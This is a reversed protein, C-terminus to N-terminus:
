ELSEEAGTPPSDRLSSRTGHWSFSTCSQSGASTRTSELTSTQALIQRSKSAVPSNHCKALTYICSSALRNKVISRASNQGQRRNHSEGPQRPQPASVCPANNLPSGICRKSTPSKIFNIKIALTSLWLCRHLTESVVRRNDAFLKRTLCSQLGLKKISLVYRRYELSSSPPNTLVHLNNLTMNCLNSLLKGHILGPQRMLSKRHRRKLSCQKVCPIIDHILYWKGGISTPEKMGRQLFPNPFIWLRTLDRGHRIIQIGAFHGPAAINYSGLDTLPVPISASNDSLLQAMRPTQKLETDIIVGWTAAGRTTSIIATGRPALSYRQALNTSSTGKDKRYKM